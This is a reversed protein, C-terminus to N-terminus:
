LFDSPLKDEERHRVVSAGLDLNRNGVSGEFRNEARDQAEM